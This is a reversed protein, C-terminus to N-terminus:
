KEGATLVFNLRKQKILHKFESVANKGASKKNERRNEYIKM